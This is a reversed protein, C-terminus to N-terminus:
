ASSSRRPTIRGDTALIIDRARRMAADLPHAREELWGDVDPNRPPM